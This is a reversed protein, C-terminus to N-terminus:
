NREHELQLTAEYYRGMALRSRHDHQRAAVATM